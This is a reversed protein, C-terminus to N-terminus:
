LCFCFFLFVLVISFLFCICFSSLRHLRMQFMFNFIQLIKKGAQRRAHFTRKRFRDARNFPLIGVQRQPDDPFIHENIMLLNTNLLLTQFRQRQILRHRPIQTIDHRQELDIGFQFPDPVHRDINRLPGDIQGSVRCLRRRIVPNIKESHRLNHTEHQFLRQIREDPPVAQVSQVDYITVVCNVLEM